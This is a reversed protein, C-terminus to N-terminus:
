VDSKRDLDRVLKAIELNIDKELVDGDNAGPDRGGHGADIAITYTPTEPETSSPRRPLVLVLVITVAIAVLVVITVIGRRTM